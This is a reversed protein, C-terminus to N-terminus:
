NISALVNNNFKNVHFKKILIWCKLTVKLIYIIIQIELYDYSYDFRGKAGQNNTPYNM